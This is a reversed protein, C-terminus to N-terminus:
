LRQLRTRSTQRGNSHEVHLVYSGPAVASMDVTLKSNGSAANMTQENILAGTVAYLRVTVAGAEELTVDVTVADATVLTPYVSIPTNGKIQGIGSSKYQPNGWECDKVGVKPDFAYMEVYEDGEHDTDKYEFGTIDPWYAEYVIKNEEYGCVKGNQDTSIARLAYYTGSMLMADVTGSLAYHESGDECNTVALPINDTIGWRLINYRHWWVPTGDTQIKLLSLNKQQDQLFSTIVYSNDSTAMIRSSYHENGGQTGYFRVTNINMNPDLAMFGVQSPMNFYPSNGHTYTVAIENTNNNFIADINFPYNPVFMNRYPQVVNGDKDIGMQFMSYQFGLPVEVKIGSLFYYSGADSQPVYTITQALDQVLYGPPNLDNYKKNWIQNGNIDFRVINMVADQNNPSPNDPHGALFMMYSEEGDADQVKEVDVGNFSQSLYFLGQTNSYFVKSWLINGGNDFRIAIPNDAATEQSNCYGVAIYGKDDTLILKRLDLHLYDLYKGFYREWVINGNPDLRKLFYEDSNMWGNQEFSGLIVVEGPKDCSIMDKTWVSHDNGDWWHYHLKNYFGCQDDQANTNSFPLVSGALCLLALLKQKM